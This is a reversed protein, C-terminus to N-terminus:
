KKLRWLDTTIVPVVSLFEAAIAVLRSLVAVAISQPIPLIAQLLTSMALERAGLGMPAFIVLLGIVFSLNSTIVCYSLLDLTLPTMARIIFWLALGLVLTGVIDFVQAAWLHLVVKYRSKSIGKAGHYVFFPGIVCLIWLACVVGLMLDDSISAGLLRTRSSYAVQAVVTIQTLITLTPELAIPFVAQKVLVGGRHFQIAKSAQHWGLGPLYKVMTAILHYKISLSFPVDPIIAQVIEGWALTGMWFAIWTLMLGMFLSASDFQASFDVEALSSAFSNFMLALTLGVFVIQAVRRWRSSQFNVWAQRLNVLKENM